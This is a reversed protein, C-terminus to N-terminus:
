RASDQLPFESVWLLPAFLKLNISSIFFWVIWQHAHLGSPPQIPEEVSLM